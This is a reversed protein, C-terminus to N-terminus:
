LLEKDSIFRLENYEIQIILNFNKKNILEFLKKYDQKFSSIIFMNPIQKASCYNIIQKTLDIDLTPDGGVLYLNDNGRGIKRLIVAM